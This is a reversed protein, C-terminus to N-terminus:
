PNGDTNYEKPVHVGLDVSSSATTVFQVTTNSNTGDPSPKLGTQAWSFEVRVPLTAGAVSWAGTTHATTAMFTAGTVDTVLVSVGEVGVENADKTGYVNLTTGNLPVDRFVTGSVQASINTSFLILLAMVSFLLLPQELQFSLPRKMFNHNTSKNTTTNKMNM